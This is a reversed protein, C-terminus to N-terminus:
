KFWEQSNQEMIQPVAPLGDLKTWVKRVPFQAEMKWSNIDTIAKLSQLVKQDYYNGKNKRLGVKGM